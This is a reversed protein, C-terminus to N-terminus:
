FPLEADHSEHGLAQRVCLNGGPEVEALGGDLAVDDADEGLEAQPVPHLDGDVGVLVGDDPWAAASWWGASLCSGLAGGQREMYPVVNFQKWIHFLSSSAWCIM